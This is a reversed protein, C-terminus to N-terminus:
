YVASHVRWTLRGRNALKLSEEVIGADIGKEYLAAKIFFEYFRELSSAFSTVAERYYGDRIAFAGIEFLLEFKQEQLSSVNTHGEPCTFEYRGDDRFEV